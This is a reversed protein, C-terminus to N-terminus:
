FGYKRLWSQLMFKKFKSPRFLITFLKVLRVIDLCILEIVDPVFPRVYKSIYSRLLLRRIDKRKWDEAHTVIPHEIGALKVYYWYHEQEPFKVDLWPKIHASYHIIAPNYANEEFDFDKQERDLVALAFITHGYKYPLKYWSDRFVYNLADQDELYVREQKINSFELLKEQCNNKRWYDLNILMVGACFAQKGLPLSMLTRHEDNYPSCDEVAAVGYGDLNITFLPKIDKLVIVDCDLYLVRKIQEDLLSPLMLRYYTAITVPSNTRRNVNALSTDDIKYFQIHQHYNDALQTFVSKSEEKLSDGHLLHVFIEHEKNNDYVSCIMAACHQAYNDDTSCTIDIRM